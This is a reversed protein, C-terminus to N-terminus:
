VTCASSEVPLHSDVLAMDNNPQPSHEELMVSQSTVEGLSTSATASRNLDDLVQSSDSSIRGLTETFLGEKNQELETDDNGYLERAL